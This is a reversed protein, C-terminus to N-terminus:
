LAGSDRGVLYQQVKGVLVASQQTCDNIAVGHYANGAPFLGPWRGAGEEIRRVRELHGLQYQPIARDWRIITHFCPAATIHMLRHLERRVAELLRDDSWGVMEGRHWGGCMARLLICGAPARDPFASSCWQVGLVDRRTREPVIFGFGDLSANVAQKEYGLAVVAVRNYSIGGILEALAPDLDSLLSAQEHAPCTLIVADATWAEGSEARVKWAARSPASRALAAGYDPEQTGRTRYESGTGPEGPALVPEASGFGTAGLGLAKTDREVMEVRTVNVGLLLRDGVSDALREILARLGDRFSWLQNGPPALQETNAARRRDRGSRIFGKVVSGYQREFNSLRPFAAPLSLLAPDGAYIGTVMADALIDAAEKGARRRVFDRISEDAPSRRRPRLPEALLRLKGRWGLLDSRLFEYFSRPLLRLRDDIAVFRNRGAVESAPVLRRELGLERCLTLTSPKNDLFGNAGAEVQFGGARETWIKGGPRNAQELVRVDIAGPAQRLRYALTLGSIGAGVVIVKPM